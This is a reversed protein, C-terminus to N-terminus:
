RKLNERMREAFIPAHKALMDLVEAATKPPNRLARAQDIIIEAMLTADLELLDLLFKDPSQAEVGFPALAKSPFHRLNSTVIIPAGIAVAAALVHRDNPHNPMTEILTKHQTITAESFAKTM